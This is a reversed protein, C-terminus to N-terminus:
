VGGSAATDGGGAPLAKRARGGRTRPVAADAGEEAAPAALLPSAPAAPLARAAATLLRVQHAAVAVRRDSALLDPSAADEGGALADAADLTARVDGLAEELQTKRACALHTARPHPPPPPWRAAPAAASPARV